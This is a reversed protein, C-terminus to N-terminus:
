NLVPFIAKKDVALQKYLMYSRRASYFISL